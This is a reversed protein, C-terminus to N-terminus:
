AARVCGGSPAAVRAVGAVSKVIVVIAPTLQQRARPSLWM